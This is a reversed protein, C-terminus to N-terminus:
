KELYGKQFCYPKVYVWPKKMVKGAFPQNRCCSEALRQFCPKRNAKPPKVNSPVAKSVWALPCM